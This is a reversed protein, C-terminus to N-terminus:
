FISWGKYNIISVCVSHEDLWLFIIFAFEKGEVLCGNWSGAWGKERKFVFFLLLFSSPYTFKKVKYRVSSVLSSKALSKLYKTTPVLVKTKHMHLFIPPPTLHSDNTKKMWLNLISKTTIFRCGWAETMKHRHVATKALARQLAM